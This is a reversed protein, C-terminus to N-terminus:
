SVNLKASAVMAGVHEVPELHAQGAGPQGGWPPPSQLHSAMQVSPPQGPLAEGGGVLGHYMGRGRQESNGTTAPTPTSLTSRDGGLNRM